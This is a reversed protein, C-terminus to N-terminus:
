RVEEWLQKKGNPPALLLNRQGPQGELVCQYEAYGGDSWLLFLQNGRTGWRGQENLKQGTDGSTSSTQEGSSDRQEGGFIAQGGALFTGDPKLIMYRDSAINFSETSTRSTHSYTNRWSGVIRPDQEGEGVGFSSFIEKLTNERLELHQIEGLASMALAFDKYIMVFVRARVKAGMPNQGEWTLIAGTTNGVVLSEVKGTYQLFPALMMMTQQLYQIVRVDEPRSIGPSPAGFIFYVEAPGYANTKLDPPILTLGGQGEQIKWTEPYGFTFGLPHRYTKGTKEFTGLPNLPNQPTQESPNMTTEKNLSYTVGGTSFSLNTNQLSITFPFEYGQNQFTGELTTNGTKRAKIPFTQGNFIITGSYQELTGQLTLTLQANKFTGQFPDSPALPNIQAEFLTFFLFFLWLVLIKM